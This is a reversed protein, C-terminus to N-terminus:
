EAIAATQGGILDLLARPSLEVQAGIKGGSVIITELSECSSDIVTRFQKKMGIPSCGGRIYGTTKNIEDVHIMEVSKEGVSKAAAKLNLEKAVPVVFVYFERSAGRTVLTKYVQEVNQGLKGAVSVGDIKGDEHDYFYFQYAIKAKDLIRMVNTKNNDKAM